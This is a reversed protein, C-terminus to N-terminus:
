ETVVGIWERGGLLRPRMGPPAAGSWPQDGAHASVHDLTRRGSDIAVAGLNKLAPPDLKLWRPTCSRGLGYPATVIDADACAAALGRTNGETATLALLRLGGALPVTCAAANCRAGALTDFRGDAPVAAQESWNRALFGDRHARLMHLRGNQVVGVQRGDDSVFLDPRPFLLALTAAAGLVPLGLFRLRGELLLLLMAGVGLMVLAAQPIAPMNITAGPWAAVGVGIAALGDLAPRLAILAVDGLGLPALLMWTGLLPMIVFGTLPVAALNAIVGYAGARGFHALAIPALALEAVLGTALLAGALRLGRFMFAEDPQPALLRAMRGRGLAVLALVATFSLQFGPSFLAEPLVILIAFAAAALLRPALPDRGMMMAGLVVWAAIAARVAPLDAGSLLTYFTGAVGAGVAAVPMVPTRLAFWPWLALGFRLLAMTAVVVMGVHYGSVTLIHALGATRMDQLLPAPIRGQEGIVLAAAIAGAEGGIEASISHGLSLRMRDLWNSGPTDPTLVQPAALARGTASIGDFWAQRAPDHSTPLAAPAPPGLAAVVQVRSGVGLGAPLPAPVALRVSIAPDISSANRRLRLSWREGGAHPVLEEVTGVITAASLRHYLRPAAVTASRQDAAVLGIAGLLGAAVIARRATGSFAFGSLALALFGLLAAQRETNLPLLFWLAIGAALAVPAFLPLQRREAELM